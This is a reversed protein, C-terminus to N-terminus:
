SFVKRAWRVLWDVRDRHREYAQTSIVLEAGDGLAIHHWPGIPASAMPVTGESPSLAPTAADPSITALGLGTRDPASPDVGLDLPAARYQNM